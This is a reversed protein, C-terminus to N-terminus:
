LKWKIERRKLNRLIENTKSFHKCGFFGRSASLPSPHAAKLVFHKNPDILAGKKQAPSGWLLFVVGQKRNNIESIVRDTFQEWGRGAHSQPNGQEVTLVTNLLLVGQKAWGILSGSIPAPIGLDAALEKFINKLSPPQPVGPQVSFCLGHAQGPGFYPDQGLIVVSLDEFSTYSLAAFVDETAPYIIKGRLREGEVFGLLKKFYEKEKEGTLVDKWNVPRAERSPMQNNEFIGVQDM